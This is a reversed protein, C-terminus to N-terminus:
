KKIFTVSKRIKLDDFTIRLLYTGPDLGSVDFCVDKGGHIKSNGVEVGYISYIRTTGMAPPLGDSFLHLQDSVPNPYIGIELPEDPSEMGVFVPTGWEEAGKKFYALDIYYYSAWPDFDHHEKGCGTIYVNDYGTDFGWEDDLYVTRGNFRTSDSYVSDIGELTDNLVYSVTKVFSESGTNPFDEYKTGTQEYFVISSDQNYYKDTIEFREIFRGHVQMLSGGENVFHFVDGIEFDYIEGLKAANQSQVSVTLFMLLIVSAQKMEM